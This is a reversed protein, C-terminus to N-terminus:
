EVMLNCGRIDSNDQRGIIEFGGNEYCIGLDETAIFACSDINALDVIQVIGAKGTKQVTRPDTTEATMVKMTPAAFFVGAGKSYAQSLLETMGYESHIESLNFSSKLHKHMAEKTMEARRGKMGGTEMVIIGKLDPHYHDALDLLAYSVGILVTPIEKRRLKEITELLRDMENLFFGSQSCKSQSIFNSCMHVLSSDPRELYSPLLALFCYDSVSGYFRSFASLSIQDYVQTDSLHHKSTQQGTTGSSSFVVKADFNGSKVTHTKFFSVPLFPIDQLSSVNAINVNLCDVFSQYLTNYRYQFHFLSLAVTEFDNNEINIVQKTLEQRQRTFDM